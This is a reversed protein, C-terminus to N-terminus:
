FEKINNKIKSFGQATRNVVAAYRKRVTSRFVETGTLPVLPITRKQYMAIFSIAIGPFLFSVCDFWFSKKDSFHKVTELEFNHELITRDLYHYPYHHAKKRFSKMMKFGSFSLHHDMLLLVGDKSLCEYAQLMTQPLKNIFPLAHILIIIDFTHAKFPWLSSSFQAGTKKSGEVFGSMYFVHNFQKPLVFSNEEDAGIVLVSSGAKNALFEACTSYELNRLYSSTTASM